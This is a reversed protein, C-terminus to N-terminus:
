SICFNFLHKEDYSNSYQSNILATLNNITDSIFSKNVYYIYTHTRHINIIYIYICVCMCTYINTYLIFIYMCINELYVTRTHIKYICLVYVGYVCVCVCAHMQIYAFIKLINCAHTHIYLICICLVCVCINHLCFSKNRIHNITQSCKYKQVAVISSRGILMWSRM